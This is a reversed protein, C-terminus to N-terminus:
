ADDELQDFARNMMRRAKALQQWDELSIVDLEELLQAAEDTTLQLTIKHERTPRYYARM